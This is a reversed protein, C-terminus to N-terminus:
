GQASGVLEAEGRELESTRHPDKQAIVTLFGIDDTPILQLM